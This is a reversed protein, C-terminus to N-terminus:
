FQRRDKVWTLLLACRGLVGALYVPLMRKAGGLDLGRM